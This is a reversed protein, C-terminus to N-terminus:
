HRDDAAAQAQTVAAAAASESAAQAGSAAGLSRLSEPNAPTGPVPGALDQDSILGPRSGHSPDHPSPPRAAPIM